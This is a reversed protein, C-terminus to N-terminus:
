LIAHTKTWVLSLAMVVDIFFIVLFHKTSYSSISSYVPLDGDYGRSEMANYMDESRKFSLVFMRSILQAYCRITSNMGQHGLRSQQAIRISLSVETMVHIQRYILVMLDTFLGTGKHKLISALGTVSTTFTLFYLLSVVSLGKAIILGAQYLGIRSVALTLGAFSFDAFYTRGPIANVEIAVAMAGFLIFFIPISLYKLLLGPKIGTIFMLAICVSLFLVSSFIFSVSLLAIGMSLLVFIVKEGPHIDRLKNNLQYTHIGPIM